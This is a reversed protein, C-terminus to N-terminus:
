WGGRLYINYDKSIGSGATCTIILYSELDKLNNQITFSSGSTQQFSYSTSLVNSGSCTIVFSGSQIINDKYLSAYYERTSGELVYNMDPNIIIENNTTPTATAIVLCSASTNYFEISSASNAISTTIITSGTTILTVLGSGSVTAVLPNSTSWEVDRTTSYGNYTISETLQISSGPYSEVYEKNLSVRYLNTHVDAIGNIVDDLEPNVFNAIMDIVLLKASNNDYTETNTFDNIGTGVVKYCTWHEHNGFLFRQNENILNSKSNLQAYIHLFGGPTSFASGQTYYDRPEKVLYEVCCPEEYYAGTKEDIWRM